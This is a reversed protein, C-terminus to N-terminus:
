DRSRRILDFREISAGSAAGYVYRGAYVLVLEYRRRISAARSGPM